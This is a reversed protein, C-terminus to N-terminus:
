DEREYCGLRLENFTDESTWHYYTQDPFIVRSDTMAGVYYNFLDTDASPTVMSLDVEGNYVYDSTSISCERTFGEKDRYAFYTNAMKGASAKECYTYGEAHIPYVTVQGRLAYGGMYVTGTSKSEVAGVALSSTAVLMAALAVAFLKKAKM